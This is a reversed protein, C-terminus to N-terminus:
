QGSRNADAKINKIAVTTRSKEPYQHTQTKSCPQARLDKAPADQRVFALGSDHIDTGNLGGPNRWASSMVSRGLDADLSQRLIDASIVGDPM